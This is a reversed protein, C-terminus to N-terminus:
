IGPVNFNQGPPVLAGLGGRAWTHGRGVDLFVMKQYFFVHEWIVHLFKLDIRVDDALIKLYFTSFTTNKSNESIKFQFYRLIFCGVGM